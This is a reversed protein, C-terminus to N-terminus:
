RARGTPLQLQEGGLATPCPFPLACGLCARGGLPNREHVIGYGDRVILEDSPAGRRGAGGRPPQPSPSRTGTSPSLEAALTM